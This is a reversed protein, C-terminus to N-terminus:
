GEGQDGADPWRRKIYANWGNAEMDADFEPKTASVDVGPILPRGGRLEEFYANRLEILRDIRRRREEQPLLDWSDMEEGSPFPDNYSPYPITM